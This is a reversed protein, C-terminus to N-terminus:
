LSITAKHLQQKQHVVAGPDIVLIDELPRKTNGRLDQRLLGLHTHIHVDNTSFLLVTLM